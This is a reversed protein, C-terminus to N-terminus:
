AEDNDNQLMLQLYRYARDAGVAVLAATSFRRAETVACSVAHQPGQCSCHNYCGDAHRGTYLAKRVIHHAHKYREKAAPLGINM